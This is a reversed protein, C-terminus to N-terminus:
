ENLLEKETILFFFCYFFSFFLIGASTQLMSEVMFNLAILLTFIFALFNKNIISTILKGFTLLVLLLFGVFGLGIFTQLYQNHANLKKEFAGVLGNKQYQQYLQANVNGVGTGLFFNNKILVIANKWVLMRVETSESSKKDLKENSLKALSDFRNFSKSFIKQLLIFCIVISIFLLIIKKLNIKEKLNYFFTSIVCIFYSIIGLKSACLFISLTFIFIFFYSLRIIIKDSRFWKTYFLTIIIIAMILYMSFYSVHLFYSFYTYYLYEPSGNFFYYIARFILILCAFFCGSVFSILCKKLIEKPWLFCYFLYPFVIFSLKIEIAFVLEDIDKSFFSSICTLIFFSYLLHLNKNRLGNQLNTFSLNFFSAIIWLIIIASLLLSGFPLCFSFLVPFFYFIKKKNLM